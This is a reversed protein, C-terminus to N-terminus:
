QEAISLNLLNGFIGIPLAVGLATFAVQTLTWAYDYQFIPTLDALSAAFNINVWWTGLIAAFVAASSLLMRLLRSRLLGGLAFTLAILMCAGTILAGGPPTNLFLVHFILLAINLGLGGALTAILERLLTSSTQFREVVVRIVFIGLGFIAGFILGQVLSDTIRATDMLDPLRYTVYMQIAVGLAAGLLALLYVGILSVPEQLLHQVIWEFSLRFRLDRPVFTPLSGAARQILLLASIKRAEDSQNLLVRVAPASRLHGILEAATDGFESDELAFAGLRKAQDADLVTSGNWTGKPQTLARLGDFIERRLFANDTKVGTELLGTTMNEPLGATLAGINKDTTLHTIIRGTIIENHKRLLRSSVALRERPDRVALWWQEDNYAYTLAQSLLFDKYPEVDIKARKLDILAFRTLGLNYTEDTSKWQGFAHQLMEAVDEDRALWGAESKGVPLAEAPINFIHRIARM